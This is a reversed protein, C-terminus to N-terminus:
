EKWRSNIITNLYNIVQKCLDENIEADDKLCLSAHVLNRKKRIIHAEKAEEMWEPKKIEEIEDIYDCM